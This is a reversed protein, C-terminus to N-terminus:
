SVPPLTIELHEGYDTLTVTFTTDSTASTFPGTLTVQRLQYNGPDIAAVVMVPQGPSKNPLLPVSSGPVQTTVEDLLEGGIRETGTVRSSTGATLMASLGRNPDLLTTPNGLGFTSPDIKRYGTAFPLQAEVTNGVAAVKITTQFGSVVVDLSGQLGDPRVLDGSGGRIVTSGAAVNSAQLTFHVASTSDLAKKANQLLSQSSSAAGSSSSSSGCATVALVALLFGPFAFKKPTPRFQRRSSDPQM